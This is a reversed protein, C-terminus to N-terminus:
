EAPESQLIRLAAVLQDIETELLFFPLSIRLGQRTHPLPKVIMKWRRRLHCALSEGTWGAVEFSVLAAARDAQVPTLLSVGDLQKLQQKLRNALLATRQEIKPLGIRQLWEAAAAWAHILPWSWPGYQFREATNRLVYADQEFDLSQESRGGAYTIALLHQSTQRAYLLGSAYPAYMWKYSLIGAFDCGMGPLDLEFLGASHAVDVFTLAGRQRAIRCLDHLPLRYGLDTTVHSLAVLRTRDSLCDQLAALQQDAAPLLPLKVVRVGYRDRLHLTPLLLAAEEDQSIIIEDGPQWNLGRLVTQYAESVGRMLALERPDVAFFAALCQMTSRRREYEEDPYLIHLPGRDLLERMLRAHEGAICAPTISVGGNQFWTYKDLAPFERRIAHVDLQPSPNNSM